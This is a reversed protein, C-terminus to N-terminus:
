ALPIHRPPVLVTRASRSTNPYKTSDPKLRKYAGWFTRIPDHPQVVSSYSGPCPFDKSTNGCDDIRGQRQVQAWCTRSYMPPPSRRWTNISYSGKGSANVVGEPAVQPPSPVSTILALQAPSEKQNRARRVCIEPCICEKTSNMPGMNMMIRRGKMWLGSSVRCKSSSM